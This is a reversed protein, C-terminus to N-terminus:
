EVKHWYMTRGLLSVGLYGRVKLRNAGVFEMYCKYTKGNLPNYARGHEWEKDDADYTLNTVIKIRDARVKRLAPDPNLLDYRPTGDPLNPTKMWVVQAYYTGDEAKAIKIKSEEGTEEEVVYYVGIIRDGDLSPAALVAPFLAAAFILCMLALRKIM